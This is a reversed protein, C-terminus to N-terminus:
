HYLDNQILMILSTWGFPATGVGKGTEPHYMEYFLHDEQWQTFVTSVIREKVLDYVNNAKIALHPRNVMSPSGVMYYAKLGRLLM